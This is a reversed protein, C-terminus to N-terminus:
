CTNHVLVVYQYTVVYAHVHLASCSTCALLDIPSHRLLWHQVGTGVRRVRVVAPLSTESLFTHYRYRLPPGYQQPDEVFNQVAAPLVMRVHITVM